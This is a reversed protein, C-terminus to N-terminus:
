VPGLPPGPPPAVVGLRAYIADRDAELATPASGNELRALQALADLSLAVQYDALRVQASRLSEEVAARARTLEGLQMLAYGRIRQLAPVHVNVGMADARALADDALGLAADPRKQLILSEAMRADTEVIENQAGVDVFASRAEEFLAAAEEYRNSRSAVEALKRTGLAVRARWRSAKWVRLADRLLVEAQELHGQDTLIEAINFTGDAANVPDGTTQRALRGKEYLELADNWRGEYYAFAGMGNYVLAQKAIDGLEEYIALARQSYVAREPQGLAVYCWDLIYYAHALAEAEGARDAAEIAGRCWRIAEESRGQAQRVAAYGVLLRARVVGAEPSDFGELLRLGRRFWRLADSYRGLREPIWAEKLLVTAESVPDGARFRRAAKYATAAEGYLGARKRADGLRELVLSRELAPLDALRKAADIARAYFDAAETNAYVAEAAEGAIRAYRWAKEFRNAHFFHLSLLGAEAEANSGALREIAEGARAHLASRRRYTLGEYAADRILEHKFRRVGPTEEAVFEELRQWLAGDPPEVEDDLSAAILADTFSPGLVSAYRLVTRDAPSLRDIQATLLSEVSDPLAEVSGAEASSLLEILFLPNGGSRAALAEIEHPPLPLEETAAHILAAAADAPLAELPITSVHPGTPAVFGADQARRTVVILWPRTELDDALRHLLDASADDLWHVDEFVLLTPTTLVRALFESMVEELRPKRFQEEIRETEATSPVAIGLPIALLPLLPLLDPATGEVWERLAKEASAGASDVKLLRSLAKKFTFYPTTAEYHECDAALVRVDDAQARLEALLRSKGLGPEGVLEVLRGSGRRASGLAEQLAALEVKRGVLPAEGASRVRAGAVPGVRFAQVPQRKGKVLFPELAEAEFVTRSRSLVADTALIEGPSSKGMLRAALNAADGKISYTRRYQPGFDGVFVRGSSVGVRLSLPLPQEVIERLARLMREEDDGTSKPAGSILMIKGGGLAIDTDFFAVEHTAAARQVTRISEHLAATVAQPGARALLDGAGSFEIFAVTVPRHEAERGGGLLHERIATPLCSALDLDSVDGVPAAPDIEVEPAGRLLVSPGKTAGLLAPGIAAAAAPSLAIEGADAVAEMEVTTDAGPGVVILERHLDGVLFFHFTGSHIGISMRLDVFGASTRLRRMGRMTRQMEVAGRAARAAHESGTFLLLVADGGWKVVGAGYDYAVSLLETFCEDLTDNVEEAGVKGGRALRETMKTFGSIDVFALSGEVERFTEDPTQRLWEILLRSVYPALFDSATPASTAVSVM